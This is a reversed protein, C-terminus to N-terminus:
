ISSFKFLFGSNTPWPLWKSIGCTYIYHFQFDTKKKKFVNIDNVPVIYSFHLKNCKLPLSWNWQSREFLKMIQQCISYSLVKFKILYLMNKNEICVNWFWWLFYKLNCVRALYVAPPKKKTKNKLPAPHTSATRWNCSLAPSFCFVCTFQRRFSSLLDRCHLAM